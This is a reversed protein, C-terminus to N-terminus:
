EQERRVAGRPEVITLLLCLALFACGALALFVEDWSYADLIVGTVFPMAAGGLQGCTNLLSAAVPFTAGDTLGSPFIRYLSLRPEPPLRDHRRHQQAADGRHAEASTRQFALEM